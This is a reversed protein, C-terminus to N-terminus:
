DHEQYHVTTAAPQVSTTQAAVPAAASVPTQLHSQSLLGAASIAALFLATIVAAIKIRAKQTM